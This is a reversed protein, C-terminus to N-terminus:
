LEGPRASLRAIAESEAIQDPWRLFRRYLDPPSLQEADCELLDDIAEYMLTALYVCMGIPDNAWDATIEIKATDCPWETGCEGCNWHPRSAIHM